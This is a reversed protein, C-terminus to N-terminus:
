GKITVEFAKAVSDRVFDSDFGALWDADGADLKTKAADIMSRIKTADAAATGGMAVMAKEIAFFYYAGEHFAVKAEEPDVMSLPEYLEHGVSAALVKEMTEDIEAVDHAYDEDSKWDISEADAAKLAKDLACSGEIIEDFLLAGYTTGNTADRKAAVAAVSLLSSPDNRPGTGLYAFAEDYPGREAEVLEHYVSLYFFRTLSKDIIEKAVDVDTESTAGKGRAIGDMIHADITKGAALADADDPFHQDARSQVEARLDASTTYLGEIEAFISPAKSVDALADEAMVAFTAQLAARESQETHNAAAFATYTTAGCNQGKADDIVKQNDGAGCGAGLTLLGAALLACAHRFM